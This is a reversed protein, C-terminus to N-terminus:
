IFSRGTVKNKESSFWGRRSFAIECREEPRQLSTITMTEGVDTYMAGMLPVLNHVSVVPALLEYSEDYRDFHFYTRYKQTMTLYQGNFSVNVSINTYM